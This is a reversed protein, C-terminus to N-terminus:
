LSDRDVWTKNQVIQFVTSSHVGYKVGLTKLSVGGNAYEQRISRAMSMSLKSRGNREGVTDRGHLSRDVCDAKKTDWRLNQPINNAPNGDCHCCVTGLPKPGIFALAVAIHVGVMNGHGLGVNLHGTKSGVQKLISGKRGRVQGLSSAMYGPYGPIELWREAEM